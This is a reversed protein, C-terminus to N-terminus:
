ENENQIKNQTQNKLNITQNGYVTRYLGVLHEARFRAEKDTLEIGYLKKYIKKYETIANEPLM